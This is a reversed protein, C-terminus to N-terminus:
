NQLQTYVEEVRRRLEELTGTNEIVYTAIARRDERSLRLLSGHGPGGGGIWGRDAVMEGVQVEAAADVM